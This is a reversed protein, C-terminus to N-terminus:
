HCYSRDVYRKRGSSSYTYCGGRPGTYYGNDARVRRTGGGGAAGRSSSATSRVAPAATRVQDSARYLYGDAAGYTYVRAWGNADKPGLEVRTGRALTRLRAADRTPQTRVNMDSHLYFWSRAGYEDDSDRPASYTPASLPTYRSSPHDPGSTCMGLIMLFMFGLCGFSAFGAAGVPEATRAHPGAGGSARSKGGVRQRTSLGTGLLRANVFTGHKGSNVSFGRGGVTTSVGRSSLNLRIGPAIKISKRFRWGM